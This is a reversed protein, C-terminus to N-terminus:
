PLPHQRLFERMDKLLREVDQKKRQRHQPRLREGGSGDVSCAAYRAQEPPLSRLTGRELRQHKEHRYSCLLLRVSNTFTAKALRAGFFMKPSTTM